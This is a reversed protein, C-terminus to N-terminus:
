DSRYSAGPLEPFRIAPAHRHYEQLSCVELRKTEQMTELGTVAADLGRLTTTISIGRMVAHARMRVEDLRPTAGSSPTNVIWQVQKEEMLDLANPRGEALRFVAQSSIGHNRLLTSTGATAFITFGLVSLRRALPVLADKDEDRVSILVSGSLPLAAGAAIQSKLFAMGETTDLGMVEGTSKMEPSLLVDTGPFRVFPFVAEKVSYHRTTVERIFGMDKLRFGAMVLAALKALPVGIAKSVFPVTRSARPNVELVYVRDEKVAYQVNMLGVVRLEQALRRTCRRIEERVPEGLTPAPITCASDGSHIGALEVHEMIAGIVTTEGDAICDVDVEVANDLYRDILVPREESVEVAESVYRRLMERNCVIVM